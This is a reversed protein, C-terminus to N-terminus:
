LPISVGVNFNRGIHAIGDTKLRSLHSVYTENLLNNGSIRITFPQQFLMCKGGVGLNLISYADTITEFTNIHNKDFVSQLTVFAYSSNLWNNKKVFEVRLTNTWNNAPILPLYSDDNM